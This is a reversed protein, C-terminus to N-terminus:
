RPLTALMAPPPGSEPLRPAKLTELFAVVALRKPGLARYREIVRTAEGGHRLIADDLTPESGDHWYPGSDAVGWLPTTKWADDAPHNFPTNDDLSTRYTVDYQEDVRHLRFDAYIGEIGGVEPTHCDTCGVEAFLATGDAVAARKAPTEPLVQEPRPLSRCFEAIARVQHSSLDHAAEDDSSFERPTAQAYSPNSLGIEGACANAVFDELTAFQAKWGFKGVGNELLRLRGPSTYDFDLEFDAKAAEVQRAVTRVGLEIGTIGDILGVGFLAPTSLTFTRVPSVEATYINNCTGNFRLRVPPHLATVDELSERFPLDVASAHIVGADISRRPGIAAVEFATINHENTGAGGLGGQFHCAACSDANFVPGLGDGGAREDDRVWRREFLERGTTITSESAPLRVVGFLKGSAASTWLGLAFLTAVSAAGSAFRLRSLMRLRRGDAQKQRLEEIVWGGVLSPEDIRGAHEDYRM